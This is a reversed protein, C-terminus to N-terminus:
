KIPTEDPSIVKGDKGKMSGAPAEELLTKTSTLKKTLDDIYKAFVAAATKKVSERQAVLLVYSNKEDDYEGKVVAKPIEQEVTYDVIDPIIPNFIEKRQSDMDLTYSKFLTTAEKRMVVRLRNKADIFAKSTSFKVGSDKIPAVGIAYLDTEFNVESQATQKVSNPIPTVLSSINSLTGDITSGVNTCAVFNALCLVMIIKSFYSKM